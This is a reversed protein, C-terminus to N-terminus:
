KTLRRVERHNKFKSIGWVGVCSLAYVYVLNIFGVLIVHDFNMYDSVYWPFFFIFILIRGWIEDHFKWRSPFEPDFSVFGNILFLMICLFGFFCLMNWRNPIFIQSFM